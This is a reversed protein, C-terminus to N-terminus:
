DENCVCWGCVESCVCGDGCQEACVRVMWASCVCWWNEDLLGMCVYM